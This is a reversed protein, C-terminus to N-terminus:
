RKKYISWPLNFMGKHLIFLEWATLLYQMYIPHM